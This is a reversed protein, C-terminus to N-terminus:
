FGSASDRRPLHAGSIRGAAYQTRTFEGFLAALLEQVQAAGPDDSPAVTPAPVDYEFRAARYPHGHGSRKDAHDYLDVTARMTPSDQTMGVHIVVGIYM